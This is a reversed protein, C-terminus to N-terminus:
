VLFCPGFVFIVTIWFQLFNKLGSDLIPEGTPFDEDYDDGDVEVYDELEKPLTAAELSLKIARSNSNEPNRPGPLTSNLDPEQTTSQITQKPDLPPKSTVESSAPTSNPSGAPPTNPDWICIGDSNKYHPKCESGPLGQKWEGPTTEPGILCVIKIGSREYDTREVCAIHTQLPNVHRDSKNKELSEDLSKKWEEGMQTYTMPDFKLAYYSSMSDKRLDSKSINAAIDSLEESWNLEHMNPINRENAAKKREKNIQAIFKAQEKDPSNM